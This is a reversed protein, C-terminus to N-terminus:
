MLVYYITVRNVCKNDTVWCLSTVFYSKEQPLLHERHVTTLQEQMEGQESYLLEAYCEIVSSSLEAKNLAAIIDEYSVAQIGEGGWVLQANGKAEYIHKLKEIDSANMQKTVTNKPLYFLDATRQMKRTAM